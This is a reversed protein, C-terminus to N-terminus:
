PTEYGYLINSTDTGGKLLLINSLRVQGPSLIGRRGDCKLDSVSSAAAWGCSAVQVDVPLCTYADVNGTPQFKLFSFIGGPVSNEPIYTNSVLTM